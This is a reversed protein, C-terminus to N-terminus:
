ASFTNVSVQMTNATTNGITITVGNTEDYSASNITVGDRIASESTTVHYANYQKYFFVVFEKIAYAGDNTNRTTVVCKRFIGQSYAEPLTDFGISFTNTTGSGIDKSENKILQNKYVPHAEDLISYNSGSQKYISNANTGGTLNNNGFYVNSNEKLSCAYQPVTTGSGDDQTNGTATMNGTVNINKTATFELNTQSNGSSLAGNRRLMNNSVINRTSSSGGVSVGAKGNRDFINSDIINHTANYVSVGYGNNWEIKNNSIINDNAGQNLTIGNEDNANITCYTIRSDVPNSAGNKCGTIHCNRLYITKYNCRFGTAFGYITCNNATVMGDVGYNEKSGSTNAININDIVTTTNHTTLGTTGKFFLGSLPASSYRPINEGKIYKGSPVDLSSNCKFTANPIFITNAKTYNLAKQIAESDDHVNDGYAGFQKVNLTDNECIFEAILNDDENMAIISAEDVVDDNTINRIKYLAAGGDNKLHYGLTRAFSGNVLNTADKMDAVTDFGWVANADLYAGIIEQLTGDEAMQDLKNNIEDQVDLNKFYDMVYAKLNDFKGEVLEQREVVDNQSEIVKNCYEIIKCELGYDTLSDINNEIFPFNQLAPRCIHPIKKNNRM